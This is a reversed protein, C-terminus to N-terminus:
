KQEGQSNNKTKKNQTIKSKHKNAALVLMTCSLGIQTAYLPAAAIKQILRCALVHEKATM